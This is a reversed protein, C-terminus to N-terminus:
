KGNKWAFTVSISKGWSQDAAVPISGPNHGPVGGIDDGVATHQILPHIEDPLRKELLIQGVLHALRQPRVM